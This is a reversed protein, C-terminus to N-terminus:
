KINFVRLIFSLDNGIFRKQILHAKKKHVIHHDKGAITFPPTIEFYYDTQRLIVKARGAFLNMLEAIGDHLDDDELEHCPIGTMYSVLMGATERTMTVSAMGSNKGLLFMAGTIECSQAKGDGASCGEGKYALDEEMEFGTMTIMVDSVARSFADHYLNQQESM